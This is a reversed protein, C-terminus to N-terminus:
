FAQGGIGLLISVATGEALFTPHIDATLIFAGRGGPDSDGLTLAVRGNIGFFPGGSGCAAEEANAGCGALYDLSPGAGLQVMSGLTVDAMLANMSLFLVAGEDPGSAFAGVLGHGHYYVGLHENLQVGLSLSLGGMGGDVDGIFGGGTATLGFRFRADDEAPLPILPDDDASAAQPSIFAALLALLISVRLSAM